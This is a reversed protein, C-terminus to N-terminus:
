VLTGRSATGASRSFYSRLVKQVEVAIFVLSSAVGAFIFEAFSLAQTRFVMQLAPVYTLAFQFAFVLVVSGILPRNSLMGISFLSRKNSRVALVHGMQCLCVVNFVITQWHLGHAISWAQVALAVVAMFLGVWIMYLGRGEGFVSERPPRPPRRMIDKEAKEISLCLAPLGDTVLNIWLIHIPLLAVPLGVIPGILLTLLEGANSTM